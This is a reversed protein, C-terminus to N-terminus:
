RGIAGPHHENSLRYAGTRYKMAAPAKSPMDNKDNVTPRNTVRDSLIVMVGLLVGSGILVM